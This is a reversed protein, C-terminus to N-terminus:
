GIVSHKSRLIFKRSTIHLLSIEGKLGVIKDKMKTLDLKFTSEVRRCLLYINQFIPDDNNFKRLIMWWLSNVRCINTM